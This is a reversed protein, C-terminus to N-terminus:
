SPIYGLQKAIWNRLKQNNRQILLDHFTKSQKELLWIDKNYYELFSEFHASAGLFLTKLLKRYYGDDQIDDPDIELSQEHLLSQISKIVDRPQHHGYLNLWGVLEVATKQIGDPSCEVRKAINVLTTCGGLNIRFRWEESELLGDPSNIPKLSEAIDSLQKQFDLFRM